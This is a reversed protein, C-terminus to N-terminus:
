NLWALQSAHPSCGKLWDSNEKPRFVLASCGCGRPLAWQFVSSQLWFCCLNKRVGWNRMGRVCRSLSSLSCTIFVFHHNVGLKSHAYKFGHLNVNEPASPHLFFLILPSSLFISYTVCSFVLHFLLPFASLSSFLNAHLMKLIDHRLLVMFVMSQGQWGAVCVDWYKELPPCLFALDLWVSVVECFVVAKGKSLEMLSFERSKFSIYIARWFCWVPWPFWM